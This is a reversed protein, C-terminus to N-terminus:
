IPCVLLFELWLDLVDKPLAFEVIEDDAALAISDAHPHITHREVKDFCIFLGGASQPLTSDTQLQVLSPCLFNRESVNSDLFQM